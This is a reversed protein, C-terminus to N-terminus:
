WRRPDFFLAVDITSGRRMGIWVVATAALLLYFSWALNYIRTPSTRRPNWPGPATM